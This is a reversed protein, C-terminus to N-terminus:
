LPVRRRIDDGKPTDSRDRGDEDMGNPGVSYLLYGPPELIYRFSEGSFPDLPIEDIYRGLLDDLVDPYSGTDRHYAELAFLLRTLLVETEQRWHAARCAEIAPCYLSGM